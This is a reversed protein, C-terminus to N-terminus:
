QKQPQQDRKQQLIQDLAKRVPPDNPNLTLAKTLHIIAEDLNGLRKLSWGLNIHAQVYGPNLRLAETLPIIAKEFEGQAMLACGMNNYAEVYKPNLRIAEKIHFIAKEYMEQTNQAKIGIAGASPRAQGNARLLSKALMAQKILTLGLENHPEYTDPALRLAETLQIVAEELKDQKELAAGRVYHAYANDPNIALASLAEKVASNYDGSILLQNAARASSMDDGSTGSLDKVEPNDPFRKIAEDALRAAGRLDGAQNRIISGLALSLASENRLIKGSDERTLNRMLPLVSRKLGQMAAANGPWSNTTNILPLHYEILPLDDTNIHAAQRAFADLAEGDAIFYSVLVAPDDLGVGALDARTREAKAKRCLERYDVSLPAKKSAVLLFHQFGRSWWLGAYPFVQRVTKVIMQLYSVPVFGSHIWEVMMGNDELRQFCLKYFEKTYLSGSGATQPWLLDVSIVSYSSKTTLLFNRGDNVIVSGRPDALVNHNVEAFLPADDMITRSLEAIDIKKAEEYTSVAYSTGGGGFGVVFVKRPDPHLLMPLHGLSKQSTLFGLSTGAIPLDDVMLRREAPSRVAMVTGYMTEDYKILNGRAGLMSEHIGRIVNRPVFVIGAVAALLVAAVGATKAFRRDAPEAMLLAAGAASNMMVLFLMTKEIGLYPVFVFGAVASGAICALTNWTYLVSISRAITSISTTYLRGALPFSAGMLFTPLLLLTLAKLFMFFLHPNNPFPSVYILFFGRQYGFLYILTLMYLGIAAQLFGFWKFLGTMRDVFRSFVLSGSAMGLLFCTLMASFAYVSNGLYLVLIRTWVVEYGMAAFGSVAFAGVVLFHRIPAATNHAAEPAILPRSDGGYGIRTNRMLWAAAGVALNVAAALLVTLSMGATGILLFGAAFCGAAAGFTNVAYLMGVSLGVVSERNVIFRSLVPLTAGMLTAPIGLLVFAFLYQMLSLMPPNAASLHYLWVYLPGTQNLLLTVCFGSLGVGIELLAYVRLPDKRSDIFRGACFSGLALGGMFMSLVTSVAYVTNGLIITLLRTWVVEYILGSIGSFFFLLFIAIRVSGQFSEKLRPDETGQAASVAKYGSKKGSM